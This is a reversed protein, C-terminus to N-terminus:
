SMGRAWTVSSSVAVNTATTGNSYAITQQNGNYSTGTISPAVFSPSGGGGGGGCASLLGIFLLSIFQRM